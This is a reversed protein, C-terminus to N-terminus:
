RLQRCHLILPGNRNFFFMAHQLKPRSGGSQLGAPPLIQVGPRPLLVKLGFTTLRVGRWRLGVVRWATLPGMFLRVFKPVAHQGIDGGEGKGDRQGRDADPEGHADGVQTAGLIANQHAPAIAYADIGGGDLEGGMAARDLATRIGAPKLHRVGTVRGYHLSPCSPASPVRPPFCSAEHAARCM